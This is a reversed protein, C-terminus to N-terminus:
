NLDIRYIAYRGSRNSSFLLYRGEPSFKPSLDQAQNRTLRVLASGDSNMLYLESNGDSESVFAIKTGDASVAASTDHLRRSAIILEKEPAAVDLAMIDLGLNTGDIRDGSFYVKGDPGWAPEMEYGNKASVRRQGAGTASMRFLSFAESNGDRDSAFIIEHGDPSWTANTDRSPDVTLNVTKRSAPDITCIETNGSLKCNFAIFRGDPSWSPGLNNNESEAITRESGIKLDVLRLEGTQDPLRASVALTSGDPSIAPQRVDAEGAAYVMKPEVREADLTYVNYKEGDKDSTFVIKTGDPSWCGSRIEANYAPDSIRVPDLKDNVNMLYIGVNENERNSNFAIQTGDPSFVQFAEKAPHFTLRRVDSGDSNMLYIEANGDRDSNFLIKTGDPSFSPNADFSRSNTLNTAAKADISYVFIESNSADNHPTANYVFRSSDPSWDISGAFFPLTIEGTGDGNALYMTTPSEHEKTFVVKKEDPSWIGTRFGKIEGGLRTQQTGDANMIVSEVMHNGLFRAFRIKGSRTWSAQDEHIQDNTLRVVRDRSNAMTTSGRPVLVYAGALVGFLALFAAIPWIWRPSYVRDPMPLSQRLPLGRLDDAAVRRVEGVFRYGAKPVTEIFRKESKGDGLAKRVASITRNLNGEEVAADSWVRALLAEKTLLHGNSEVLVLL